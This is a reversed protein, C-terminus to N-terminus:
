YVGNRKLVAPFTKCFIAVDHWLSWNRVYWSDMAVRQRYTVDNRGSVQWLGTIGPRVRNYHAIDSDYISVEDLTIPRPGVLTMDGKLVNLLQPLEDLSNRRLFNGIRTVRPDQKLKRYTEWEARAEPHEALYKKLVADSNVVMSRFKLCSFTRGGRGVRWSGYMAPGGDRRVMIGFMLFLPSLLMVASGCVAIDISRKLLRPIIQDLGDNRTMLMVDHNFFYQTVPGKVPMLRVPPVVSYPVSERVLQAVPKESAEIDNGDLALIVYDAGHSACLSEWSRGSQLYTSPLNKISAVVRYGMSRESEIATRTAQATPGNGILLVGVEFLGAQALQQRVLARFGIIVFAAIVWTGVLWLRSMDAKSAFQLFGDAMMAFGLASVIKRAEDWFTLRMRYHNSHQFWLVVGSGVLAFQAIRMLDGSDRFLPLVPRALLTINLASVLAWAMFFGITIAMLDTVLYARLVLNFRRRTNPALGGAQDERLMEKLERASFTETHPHRPRGTAFSEFNPM